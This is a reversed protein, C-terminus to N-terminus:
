KVVRVSLTTVAGGQTITLPVSLGEPAGFPVTVNIQYLGVTDPALGAYLLTLPMGGLTVTPTIVASALPNSPAPLGADVAPSTAGLGTLYIVITDKPHIPNTPTV